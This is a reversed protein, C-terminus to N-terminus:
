PVSSMIYDAAANLDGDLKDIEDTLPSTLADPGESAITDGLQLADSASTLPEPNISLGGPAFNRHTVWWGMTALLLVIAFAKVFTEMRFWGLEPKDVTSLRVASMISRHLGPTERLAPTSEKLRRGVALTTDAFEQLAGACQPRSAFPDDLANSFNFKALWSKM